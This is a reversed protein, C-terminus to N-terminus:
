QSTPTAQRPLIAQIEPTGYTLFLVDSHEDAIRREFTVNIRPTGPHVDAACQPSRGDVLSLREPQQPLSLQWIGPITTATFLPGTLANATLRTQLDHLPTEADQVEEPIALAEANGLDDNKVPANAGEDIEHKLRQIAQQIDDPQHTLAHRTMAYQEITKEIDALVPQASGVINTFDGYDEALGQYVTEEVTNAYFYNTVLIDKYTAGIRDVRGNRQEARMLNWPMEYQILRGCTQLNLGESMADTGILIKITKDRFLAKVEQKTVEEWTGATPNWIEGGRGSYCGVSGRQKYGASVLQDRVYDMTDTYQTFIVVSDYDHLAANLDGILQKAKSDSGGIDALSEVFDTLEGIEDRIDNLSVDLEDFDFTPDTDISPYDDDTLLEALAQGNQLAILRRELSKRIAYFSSTLRRRYITMIFGLAQKGQAKYANYYRTIYEEIRDYLDREQETMAIFVDQVQREPITVDDPIIGSAQYDRLTQRTNRFVRDRMPTHRRLWQDMLHLDRGELNAATEKAIGSKHLRTIKRSHVAGLEAKIHKALNTDREAQTDGFYDALMKQFLQWDRQAPQEALQDYYNLFNDPKGGWHGPLDLLNILDWAEHPHMQMPTATALYLVTWAHEHHLNNLLTLLSNPTDNPKSGRRRAHHAEDVAVIDWGGEQAAAVLQPRRARRRALHSSGLVIPYTRWPNGGPDPLVNGDPDWFSQGDYRAVDLGIKESLEEQWQKQVAAPVLILATRAKGSLILERITLGLEITKGFGVPDAFLYGRPFSTVARHVIRAQHPLPAAPASLAASFPRVRPVAALERLADWPAGDDGATHRNSRGGPPRTIRPPPVGLRKWIPDEHPPVYDKKALTLLRDDLHELPEIVWGADPMGNWHNDFRQVIGAGQEAWVEPLWSKAVAFTEHNFLWGAATENDSGLFAVQDGTPDTLIGYKSHFYGTTEDPALPHGDVDLPVGVRVELLGERVLWSLTELYTDGLQDGTLTLPVGALSRSLADTRSLAGERVAQVDEPSMQTGVILRMMGGHDVANRVFPVIGRAAIQLVRSSFYGAMRDYRFSVSLAPLYFQTLPHDAVSYTGAFGFDQLRGGSADGM